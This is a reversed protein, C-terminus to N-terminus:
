LTGNKKIGKNFGTVQDPPPHQQNKKIFISAPINSNESNPIVKSGNVFVRCKDNRIGRFPLRVDM